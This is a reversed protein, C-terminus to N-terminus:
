FTYSAQTFWMRGPSAFGEDLEYYEDTLNSVGAELIIQPTPKFAVKADATTFGSLEVTDSDWRGGEHNLALQTEWQAAPRYTLDAALKRKPVGTLKADSHRNKRHMLTLQGGTEWQPNLQARVAMELGTARVEGVNQMQYKDDSVNNVRQILNDIDSQFVAAELKVGDSVTGQYGIEYHRAKETRLDPNPIASGLRLSYRDKLTPFRTKTAITAYARNDPRFDWFVGAQANRASQDDPLPVPDSAKYVEDPHLSNFAAGLSATLGPALQFEGDLGVSRTTDEFHEDRDVGDDAKHTDKKQHLSLSWKQKALRTSEIEVSGGSIQDDYRSRGTAGVSGSGSTKLVTYTADTYSNVENQYGDRYLRLKVTETPTVSTRTILHLNDVDWEPWKWYRAREPNTSPPNGKSGRQAFYSIAYEDTENPTLGFKVSTKVDRRQANNRRGGNESGTPEFDASMRFGDSDMLSAGGQVYWNDQSSGVNLAASYTNEEAFGLRLDGELANVPKRSVLNIAGGLTNPGYFASSFGKSVQIAALDATTFRSFDVYGDYPVQLPIGDVFLPTQRMDFGRVNVAQENRSGVNTATIGPLLDLAGAVTNRNFKEMEAATIASSAQNAGLVGAQGPNVTITITGLEYVTVDAQAASALLTLAAMNLFAM